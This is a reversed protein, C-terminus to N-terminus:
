RKVRELEKELAAFSGKNTDFPIDAAIQTAARKSQVALLKRLHKKFLYSVVASTSNVQKAAYDIAAAIQDNTM